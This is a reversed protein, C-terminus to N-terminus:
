TLLVLHSAGRSMRTIRVRSSQKGDSETLSLLQLIICQSDSVIVIPLGGRSITLQYMIYIINVM